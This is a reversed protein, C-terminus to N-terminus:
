TQGERLRKMGRGRETKREKERRRWSSGTFDRYIVKFNIGIGKRSGSIEDVTFDLKTGPTAERLGLTDCTIPYLDIKGSLTRYVRENWGKKRKNFGCKKM